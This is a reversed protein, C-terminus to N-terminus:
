SFHPFYHFFLGSINQTDDMDPRDIHGQFDNGVRRQVIHLDDFIYGTFYAIPFLGELAMMDAKMREIFNTLDEQAEALEQAIVIYRIDADERRCSNGFGVVQEADEVLDADTRAEVYFDDMHGLFNVVFEKTKIIMDEFPSEIKGILRDHEQINGGAADTQGAPFRVAEQELLVDVDAGQADQFVKRFFLAIFQSERRSHAFINVAGKIREPLADLLVIDLIDDKGAATGIQNRAEHALGTFFAEEQNRWIFQALEDIREATDCRELEHLAETQGLVQGIDDHRRNEQIIFQQADDIDVHEDDHRRSEGLAICHVIDGFLRMVVVHGMELAQEEIHHATHGIFIQGVGDMRGADFFVAVDEELREVLEDAEIVLVIIEQAQGGNEVFRAFEDVDALVIEARVVQDPFCVEETKRILFLFDEGGDSVVSKVTGQAIRGDDILVQRRPLLENGRFQRGDEAEGIGEVLAVEAFDAGDAGFQM